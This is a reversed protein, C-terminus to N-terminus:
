RALAASSNAAWAAYLIVSLLIVGALTVGVATLNMLHRLEGDKSRASKPRHTVTSHM